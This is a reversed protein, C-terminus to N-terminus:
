LRPHRANRDARHVSQQVIGDVTRLGAPLQAANAATVGYADM